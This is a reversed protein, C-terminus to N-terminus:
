INNRNIKDNFLEVLFKTLELSLQSNELAKSVTMKESVGHAISNRSKVMANLTSKRPPNGEELFHRLQEKLSSDFVGLREILTDAKVNRGKFLGQEIFNVVSPSAQARAFERIVTEVVLEIHGTARLSLYRSLYGEVLDRDSLSDSPYSPLNVLHERQEKLWDRSQKLEHTPWSHKWPM